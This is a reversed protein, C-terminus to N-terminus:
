NSCLKIIISTRGENAAKEQYKTTLWNQPFEQWDKQLKAPWHFKHSKLINSLIWTKYDDHDTAIIIQPDKNASNQEIKANIKPKATKLLPYIIEDLFNQNILRRKYHKLKPWPDPFLIFIQDFFSKEDLRSQAQPTQSSSQQTKQTNLGQDLSPNLSPNLEPALKRFDDNLLLINPLPEQELKRLINIIGNLHPECGIYLNQPNDKAM